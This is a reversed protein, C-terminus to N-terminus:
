EDAADSTYLLCSGDDSTQIRENQLVGTGLSLQRSNAQPPTGDMSPNVAAVKGIDSAADAVIGTLALPASLATTTLLRSLGTRM